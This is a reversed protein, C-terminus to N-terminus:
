IENLNSHKIRSNKHNFYKRTAHPPIVTSSAIFFFITDRIRFRFPICPGPFTM